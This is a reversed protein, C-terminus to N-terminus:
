GGRSFQSAHRRKPETNYPLRNIFRQVDKPTRLRRILRQEAPKFWISQRQSKGIDMHISGPPSITGGANYMLILDHSDLKGSEDADAERERARQAATGGGWAASQGPLGFAIPVLRVM